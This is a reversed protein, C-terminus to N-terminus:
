PGTAADVYTMHCSWNPTKMTTYTEDGFIYIMVMTSNARGENPEWNDFTVRLKAPEEKTVEYALTRSSSGHHHPRWCLRALPV